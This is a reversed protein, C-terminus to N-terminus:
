TATYGADVLHLSGTISRADDSALFAALLAVDEVTPMRGLAHMSTLATWGAEDVTNTLPTKVFTPGIANVRIQKPGFEIAAVKTLGVVGHKSAVYAGVNAAAVTGMISAMNVIAGGGQAAMVPLEARLCHFVGTLNIAITSTWQQLPIDVISHFAGGMGANNIAVDLRGFEKCLLAVAREVSDFDSVDTQIAIARGGQARIAQVTRASGAADIDLVAVAAGEAALRLACAAGIGSGGGTVLASKGDFRRAVSQSM